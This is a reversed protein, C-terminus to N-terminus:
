EFQRFVGLNVGSREYSPNRYHNLDALFGTRSDIWHRWGLSIEKSQFDVLATNEAITLYGEGGWGYRVSFLDQRDRGYTAALFQQHTVVAGPTSRNYRVGGEVVLPQDFYYAASLGLGHDAHGDPAKYYGLGLSTVLNQRAFWKKNLTADLRYRPLYFAGNGAGAGASAYWQPSITFTDAVGVFNGAEGFEKKASLEGQLVHDGTAYTGRVTVNRWGAYGATLTQGGASLEISRALKLSLTEPPKQPNQEGNASWSFLAVSLFLFFNRLSATRTSM